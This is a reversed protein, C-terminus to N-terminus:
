WFRWWPKRRKPPKPPVTVVVPETIPPLQGPVHSVGAVTMTVVGSENSEVRYAEASNPKLVTLIPGGSLKQCYIATESEWAKQPDSSSRLGDDSSAMATKGGRYWVSIMTPDTSSGQSRHMWVAVSGDVYRVYTYGQSPALGPGQIWPLLKRAREPDTPDAMFLRLDERDQPSFGYLAVGPEFGLIAACLDFGFPELKRGPNHGAVTALIWSFSVATTFQFLPAQKKERNRVWGRPGAVAVWPLSCISDGDGILVCPKEIDDLHHDRVKRGPGTGTGLALWAVHARANDSCAIEADKRGVKRALAAAAFAATIPMGRYVEEPSLGEGGGLPKSRCFEVWWNLRQRILSENHAIFGFFAEATNCVLPKNWSGPLSMGTPIERRWLETVPVKGRILSLMEGWMRVADDAM